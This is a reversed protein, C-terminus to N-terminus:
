VPLPRSRAADNGVHSEWRTTRTLRSPDRRATASSVGSLITAIVFSACAARRQEEVSQLRLEDDYTYRFQAILTGNKKRHTIAAILGSPSKEFQTQVGNPLNRQTVSGSAYDFRVAAGGRRGSACLIQGFPDHAYEVREGGAYDM